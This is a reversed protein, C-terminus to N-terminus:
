ARAQVQLAEKAPLMEGCYPCFRVPLAVQGGGDVEVRWESRLVVPHMGPGAACTHVVERLENPM